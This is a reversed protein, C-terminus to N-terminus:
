ENHMLEGKKSDSLNFVKQLNDWFATYPSTKGNEILCYNTRTTGVKEAMEQQSLNQSVRFLKLNMRM